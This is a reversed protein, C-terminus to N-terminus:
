FYLCMIKLVNYFILISKYCQLSNLKFSISVLLLLLLHYYCYLLHLICFAFLTKFIWIVYRWELVKILWLYLSVFICFYLFARLLNDATAIGYQVNESKVTGLLWTRLTYGRTNHILCIYFHTLKCVPQQVRGEITVRVKKKKKKREMCTWTKNERTSARGAGDRVMTCTEDHVLVRM